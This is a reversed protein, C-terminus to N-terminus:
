GALGATIGRQQAKTTLEDPLVAAPSLASDRDAQLCPTTVRIPCDIFVHRDEHMSRETYVCVTCMFSYM